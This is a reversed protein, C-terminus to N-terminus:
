PTAEALLSSTTVVTGVVVVEPVEVEVDVVPSFM